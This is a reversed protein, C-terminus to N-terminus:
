AIVCALDVRPVLLANFSRRGVARHYLALSRAARAACRKRLNNHERRFQAALAAREPM